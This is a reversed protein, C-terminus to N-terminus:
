KDENEIAWQLANILDDWLRQKEDNDALEWERWYDYSPRFGYADKHLDSVEREDFTYNM